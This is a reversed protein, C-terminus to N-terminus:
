SWQSLVSQCLDATFASSSNPFRKLFVVLHEWSPILLFTSSNLSAGPVPPLFLSEGAQREWQLAVRRGQFSLM